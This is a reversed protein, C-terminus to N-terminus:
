PVRTPAQRRQLTFPRAIPIPDVTEQREVADRFPPDVFPERRPQRGGAIPCALRQPLLKPRPQELRPPQQLPSFRYPPPPAGRAPRPAARPQRLQPAAGRPRRRDQAILQERPVQAVAALDPRETPQHRRRILTALPPEILAETAAPNRRHPPDGHLQGPRPQPILGGTRHTLP